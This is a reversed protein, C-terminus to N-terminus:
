GVRRPTGASFILDGRIRLEVPRTDPPVDWVLASRMQEGPRLSELELAPRGTAPTLLGNSGYFRGAKDILYQPGPIHDRDGVNRVVVDATCAERGAPLDYARAGSGVFRLGCRLDTIRFVLDGDQVPALAAAVLVGARAPRTPTVVPRQTRSASPTPTARTTPRVTGTAGPTAGLTPAPDRPALATALALAGGAGALV